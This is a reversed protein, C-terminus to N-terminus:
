AASGRADRTPAAGYRQVATTLAREALSRARPIGGQGHLARSGRRDVPTPELDEPMTRRDQVQNAYPPAIVMPPTVVAPATSAQHAGSGTMPKLTGCSSLGLTITSAISSSSASPTRRRRHRKTTGGGGRNRSSRAGPQSQAIAKSSTRAPITPPSPLAHTPISPPPQIVTSPDDQIISSSCSALLNPKKRARPLRLSHAYTRVPPSSTPGHQSATVTVASEVPAGAVTEFSRVSSSRPRCSRFSPPLADHCTCSVKISPGTTPYLLLSGGAIPPSRKTGATSQHSDTTSPPPVDAPRKGSSHLPGLSLHSPYGNVHQKLRNWAGRIRATVSSVGNTRIRSAHLGEESRGDPLQQTPDDYRRPEHTTSNTSISKKPLPLPSVVIAGDELARHEGKISLLGFDSMIRDACTSCLAQSSCTCGAGPQSSSRSESLQPDLLNTIPIPPTFSQPAAQIMSCSTTMSNTAGVPHFSSPHSACPFESSSSSGTNGDFVLTARRSADDTTDDPGHLPNTPTKDLSSSNGATLGDATCGLQATGLFSLIPSGPLQLLPERPLSPLPKDLSQSREEDILSITSPSSWGGAAAQGETTHPTSPGICAENTTGSIPILSRPPNAGIVM